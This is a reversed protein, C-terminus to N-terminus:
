NHRVLSVGGDGRVIRGMLSLPPVINQSTRTILVMGSSILAAKRGRMTLAIGLQHDGDVRTSFRSAGLAAVGERGAGDRNDGDWGM